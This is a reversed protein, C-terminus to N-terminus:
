PAKFDTVLNTYGFWKPLLQIQQKLLDITRITKKTVLVLMKNLM